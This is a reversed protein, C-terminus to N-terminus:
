HHNNIREHNHNKPDESLSAVQSSVPVYGAIHVRRGGNVNVNGANSSFNSYESNLTVNGSGTYHDSVPVSYNVTAKSNDRTCHDDDMALTMPDLCPNLVATTPAESPKTDKARQIEPRPDM